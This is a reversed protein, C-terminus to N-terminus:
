IWCFLITVMFIALLTFVIWGATSVKKKILIPTRAQCIPCRIMPGVAPLGAMQAQQVKREHDIRAASLSPHNPERAAIEDLVAQAETPHPTTAVIWFLLPIDENGHSRILCFHDYAPHRQGTNAIQVAQQYLLYDDDNM